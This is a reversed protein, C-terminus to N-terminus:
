RQLGAPSAAIIILRGAMWDSSIVLHCPPHSTRLSIGSEDTADMHFLSLALTDPFAGTSLHQAAMHRRAEPELPGHNGGPDCATQLM